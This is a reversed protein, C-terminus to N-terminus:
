KLPKNKSFASNEFIRCQEQLTKAKKPPTRNQLLDRIRRLKELYKHPYGPQVKINMLKRLKNRHWTDFSADRDLDFHSTGARAELRTVLEMASLQDGTINDTSAGAGLLAAVLDSNAYRIAGALHTDATIGFRYKHDLNALHSALLLTEAPKEMLHIRLLSSHSEQQKSPNRIYPFRGPDQLFVFCLIRVKGLRVLKEIESDLVSCEKSSVVDPLCAKRFLIPDDQVIAANAREAREDSSLKSSCNKVCSHIQFFLLIPLVIKLVKRLTALAGQPNSHNGEGKKRYTWALVAAMVGFLSGLLSGFLLLAPFGERMFVAFFGDITM